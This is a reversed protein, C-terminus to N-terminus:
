KSALGEFKNILQRVTNQQKRQRMADRHAELDDDSVESGDSWQVQGNNDVMSKPKRQRIQERHENLDAESVASGDSWQVHDNNVVM